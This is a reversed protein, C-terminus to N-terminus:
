RGKLIRKSLDRELVKTILEERPTSTYGYQMHYAMREDPDSSNKRQDDRRLRDYEAYSIHKSIPDKDFEQKKRIWNSAMNEFKKEERRRVRNQRKTYERDREKQEERERNEDEISYTRGGPTTKLGDWGSWELQAQHCLDKFMDITLTTYESDNITSNLTEAM